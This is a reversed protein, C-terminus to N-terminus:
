CGSCLGGWRQVFLRKRPVTTATAPGATGQEQGRWSHTRSSASPTQLIRGKCIPGQDRRLAAAVAPPRCLMGLAVRRQAKLTFRRKKAGKLERCDFLLPRLQPESCGRIRAWCTCVQAPAPQHPPATCLWHCENVQLPFNRHM